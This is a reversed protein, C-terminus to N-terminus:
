AHGIDPALVCETANLDKEVQKRILDHKGSCKPCVGMVVAHDGLHDGMVFGVSVPLFREWEWARDCVFCSMPDILGRAARFVGNLYNATASSIAPDPHMIASLADYIEFTYFPQQKQSRIAADAERFADLGNKRQLREKRRAASAKTM